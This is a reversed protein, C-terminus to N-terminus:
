KKFVFIKYGLFNWGAVCIASLIVSITEWTKVPINFLPGMLSFFLYFFSINFIMGLITVLYFKIIEQFMREKEKKEFAWFKNLWYKSFTAVLFSVGKFSLVLWGLSYPILFRLGKFVFLDVLTALVGTLLFKGAQFFILFKKGLLFCIWLGFISLIPFIFFLLFIIAQNLTPFNEILVGRALFAIGIGSIISLFIDKKTM